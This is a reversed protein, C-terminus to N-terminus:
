SSSEGDERTLEPFSGPWSSRRRMPGPVVVITNEREEVVIYAAGTPRDPSIAVHRIDVGRDALRRYTQGPDDDGVCGVM